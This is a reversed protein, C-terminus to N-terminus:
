VNSAFLGTLCSVFDLLPCVSLKVSHEEGEMEVRLRRAVKTFHEGSFGAKKLKKLKWDCLDQM